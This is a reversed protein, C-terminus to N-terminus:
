GGLPVLQINALVVRTPRDCEAVIARLRAYYDLHAERIRALGEESIAFLNYSYLSDPPLKGDGLRELAVNAWQRKLRANAAPDQQTDIALVRRVRWKGRRRQVQHSRALAHLFRETEAHSLGIKRSVFATEHRPLAHYDFLELARLVAHSWPEDYALRRQEQLDDFAASVSPLRKPDVCLAVFDLVRHTTAEIFALLQPLRPESEGDLWRRVTNRNCRIARALETHSNDRRMEQLWAGVLASRQRSASRKLSIGFEELVRAPERGSLQLLQLFDSAGPFRAGTEWAHTVNSTCGLRRNLAWQSRKGRLARVLERSLREFDM